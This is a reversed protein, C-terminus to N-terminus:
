SVQRGVDLGLGLDTGQVPLGLGPRPLRDAVDAMRAIKWRGCLASSVTSMQCTFGQRTSYAGGYLLVMCLSALTGVALKNSLAYAFSPV